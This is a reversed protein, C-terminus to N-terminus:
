YEVVRLRPVAPAKQRHWEDGDNWVLRGDVLEGRYEKGGQQLCVCPGQWSVPESRGQAWKIEDSTIQAKDWHGVISAVPAATAEVVTPTAAELRGSGEGQLGM